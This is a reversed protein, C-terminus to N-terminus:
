HNGGDGGPGSSDKSSGADPKYDALWNVDVEDAHRREKEKVLWQGRANWPPGGDPSVHCFTCDRAGYKKAKAVFPPYASTEGALLAITGAVFILVVFSKLQKM